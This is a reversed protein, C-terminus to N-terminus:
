GGETIGLVQFDIPCNALFNELEDFHFQPSNINMHFLTLDNKKNYTLSQLHSMTFYKSTNTESTIKQIFNEKVSQQINDIHTFKTQKSITTQILEEDNTGSFPLFEKTCTM